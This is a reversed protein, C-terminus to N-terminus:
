VRLVGSEEVRRMLEKVLGMAPGYRDVDDQDYGKHFLTRYNGALRDAAFEDLRPELHIIENEAPDRIVNMPTGGDEVIKMQQKLLRRFLIIGADTKGLKEQSRDTIEGQSWWAAMDQALVYDLIPEGNEDFIPVDYSPIVDQKPAEIGPPAAYLQYNVHYTHTDDMPVRIQFETRIGGGPRTYYPFVVFPGRMIQDDRQGERRTYKQIGYREIRHAMYTLRNRMSTFARHTNRDPAREELVGMRELVYKFFHGHLYTNHALDLANEQCQLWNCPLVCVGIQRVANPWVFLDWRPLLPAPAPGLYAFILGGLEEVPYGKIKVRSKFTSDPPELPTELCQGTGDYLWGHYPCRLGEEEPIGFQMGMSRHACRDGILGLRGQQDRYLVLDEGLIRVKKVPNKLLDAAPSIPHWYWRMLEGMPTGPGVRCLAENEEVSLM